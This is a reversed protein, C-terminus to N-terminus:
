KVTITLTKTTTRGYTDFVSLSITKSGATAYTHTPAAGSSTAGDGWHWTHATIAGGPFPDSAASTFQKAVGHTVTGPAGIALTPALPTFTNVGKPTGVGSVGDYGAQAYCQGTNTLTTSGSTPFGCDVLGAGLQNPNGNWFKACSTKSATDCMGTGGVQVDFTPRVTDHKFHGYLSLSPYTVGGAGGALAWMAAVMPSALSTGGFTQWGAATAGYTQYIDYGTFPDAIAAIDTMSRRGSACGLTSYGAVNMQWGKGNLKTSCGGGAAGLSRGALYAYLGSPGNNNWVTEGARTGDANLYLSTGGVGVVTNLSAPIQAANASGSNDFAVDWGYWGDDGTSATIVIGPHDYAANNATTHSADTELGGYSNSIETAHMTAARNTAAALDATSNSTAEVLLIRCRRCMGRVAQVDLSIEGAWGANAAPLSTTSGAQNVVRFSTATEAAIGYHADFAALDTKVSPDNYADVIAVTQTSAAAATVDVGYAKAIQAPTYGGSPGGALNARVGVGAPLAAGLSTSHHAVLKWANCSMTGPATAACVKEPVWTTTGISAGADTASALGSAM